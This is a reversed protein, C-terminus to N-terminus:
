LESAGRNAASEQREKCAKALAAMEELNNQEQYLEEKVFEDRKKEKLREIVQRDISAKTLAARERAAEKHSLYLLEHARAIEKKLRNQYEQYLVLLPATITGDTIKNKLDQALRDRDEEMKGIHEELDKISALRKALKLMAEEEKRERMKILFDMKFKFRAM